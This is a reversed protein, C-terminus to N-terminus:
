QGSAQIISRLAHNPILNQTRAPAKSVFSTGHEALWATIAAREYSQGDAECLVPDRMVEQLVLLFTDPWIPRNPLHQQLCKIELAPASCVM